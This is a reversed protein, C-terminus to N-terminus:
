QAAGTRLSGILQTFAARQGEITAKPGTVKFFWNADPGQAIAGLLLHDALPTKPGAPRGSQYTGGVEVTLVQISGVSQTATKMVDTSPRNDPQVFQNAWRVANSMPDGGQGPGFYYVVAQGDGATGPTGPIRYQAKRMAMSPTEAIWAGPATWSLATAGAGTGAPPPSITPAGMPPRQAPSPAVGPARSLPVPTGKPEEDCAAFALAFAFLSVRISM